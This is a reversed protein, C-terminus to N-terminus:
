MAEAEQFSKTKFWGGEEGLGTGLVLSSPALGNGMLTGLGGDLGPGPIGKLSKFQASFLESGRSTELPGM